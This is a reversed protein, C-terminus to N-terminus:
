NCLCYVKQKFKLSKQVKKGEKSMIQRFEFGEFDVVLVGQTVYKDPTTLDKAIELALEFLRTIYAVFENRLGAEVAKRIDWQGFKILIM